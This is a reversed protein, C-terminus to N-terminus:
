KRRRLAPVFRGAYTLTLVTRGRLGGTGWWQITGGAVGEQGSPPTDDRGMFNHFPKTRKTM